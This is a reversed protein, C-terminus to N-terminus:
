RTTTTYTTEDFTVVVRPENFFCRVFYASLFIFVFCFLVRRASASIDRRRNDHLVYRSFREFLTLRVSSPSHKISKYSVAYQQKRELRNERRKRNQSGATAHTRTRSPVVFRRFGDFVHRPFAHVVVVDARRGHVDPRLM